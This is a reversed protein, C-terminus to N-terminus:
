LTKLYELLARKQEASLEEFETEHGQNSLGPLSADFLVPPSWPDYDDPYVWVGDRMQGDIGVREFNLKQGGVYFKEPRTESNMLHYLTPISGNHLYPASAWIGTLPPAIYGQPQAALIYRSMDSGNVAAATGAETLINMRLMDTGVDGVWNPFSSLGKEDHTGHCSACSKLFVEEGDKALQADIPGPFSQTKFGAAFQMVKQADPVHDTAVEPSVGMSPVTFYAVIAGLDNLHKPTVDDRTLTRNTNQGPIEYTATNLFSTRYGHGDLNPISNFASLEIMTDGGTVGLRAHLSDVGNTAGPFGGYFPVARGLTRELEAIRQNAAPLVFSKLTKRETESLDPFLRDIAGWLRPDEGFQAFARYIAGPYAEMNISPNPQGLWVQSLDPTGDASYGPSVHCSACNINAATIEIPPLSRSVTGTTIGLPATLDPLKLGEPWNMIDAGSLFGWQQFANRTADWSVRELDRDVYDLTVASATIVWPTASGRLTKTTLAGYDGGVFYVAGQEVTELGDLDYQALVRSEGEAYLTVFRRFDQSVLFALGFLILLVGIIGLLKRMM